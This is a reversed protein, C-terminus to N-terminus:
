SKQSCAQSDEGRKYSSKKKEQLSSMDATKWTSQAYCLTLLPTYM